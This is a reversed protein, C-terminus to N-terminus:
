TGFKAHEVQFVFGYVVIFWFYFVLNEKGMFKDTWRPKRGQLRKLKHENQSFITAEDWLM